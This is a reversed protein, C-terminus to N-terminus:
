KILTMKKSQVFEGTIIKYVYVGSSLGTSSFNIEHKGAQLKENLLTSIEQGIMNYVKLTVIEEQPLNFRITTSPNFPNPFNQELNYSDPVLEETSRISLKNIINNIVLETGSSLITNIFIKSENSGTLLLDIGETRIKIPFSLASFEVTKESSLDEVLKNSSFRIDPVGVPPQPPLLLKYGKASEKTSAYLTTSFGEADTITIKSWSKEIVNNVDSKELVTGRPPLIITGAADMYVWFAKGRELVNAISYGIGPNYEFIPETILGPPNTTVDSPAFPYEYVGILNWGASANVTQVTAFQLQPYLIGGQVSGNWNYARNTAMKLWYGEAPTVTTVSQYTGNFKFLSASVDRGRFLTDPSMSNPHFGPFSVLNWGSNVSFATSFTTPIVPIWSTSIRIGGIILGPGNNAQRLAFFDLKLPDTSGDTQTLDSAPETGDLVPNIWLKVEDDTTSASNFTYKLVILYTTNLSYSFPTFVVASNQNKAVGFSINDSGDNRVFVKGFFATTSNEPGLHFFYVSDTTASLVNVMFSAYLSNSTVGSFLRNVDEASASGPATLTASKGLGSNIYGSYTLPSSSTQIPLNGASSHAVWGNSTLNSGTAYNFNETLPLAPANSTTISFQPVSGDTKYDIFSGSNTYPYIKFYYTTAAFGTFVAQQISQLVNQRSFSNSEPVGDVPDLIDSFDVSSRKILYGDPETGGTADSWSLNIFYYGPNGLSGSFGSVHNSPEPFVVAGNCTVNIISAGGGSNSILEGNYSGPTLGAKLRVYITTFSLAGSSYPINLNSSFSSNDTSIEYNTSGTVTINGTSPSLDSGSLNYSQSASPGSGSYIFGSLSTQSVQLAPGSVSSVILTLELDDIRWNATNVSASGTGNYGYIRFTVPNGSVSSANFNLNTKLSWTSNNSISGTALDSSYSDVSYRITYAQPATSTSRTGFSISQLTVDAGSLPTLTFEFYASGDTGVNLAGTRAAAGANYQGSAGTYGSSASTTTLLTTTGNNNGRSIDSISLNAVPTGASPSPNESTTGFNWSVVSQALSISSMLFGLCMVSILFIKINKTNKM